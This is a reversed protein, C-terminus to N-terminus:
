KVNHEYQLTKCYNKDNNIDVLFQSTQVFGTKNQAKLDDLQQIDFLGEQAYKQYVGSPLNCITDAFGVQRHKFYCKDNVIGEIIYEEYGNESIINLPECTQLNTYFARSMEEFDSKVSPKKNIKKVDEITTNNNGEKLKYDIDPKPVDSKNIVVSKSLELHCFFGLCFVIILILFYKFDKMEM